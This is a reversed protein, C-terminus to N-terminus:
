LHIRLVDKGYNKLNNEEEKNSSTNVEENSPQSPSSTDVEGESEAKEPPIFIDPKPITTQSVKGETFEDLLEFKNRFIKHLAIKSTFVTGKKYVKGTLDAHTGGIVKYKYM